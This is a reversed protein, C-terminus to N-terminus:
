EEESVETTLDASWEDILRATRFEASARWAREREDLAAKMEDVADRLDTELDGCVLCDEVAHAVSGKSYWSEGEVTRSGGSWGRVSTGPPANELWYRVHPGDVQAWSLYWHPFIESAPDVPDLPWDEAAGLDPDDLQYLHWGDELLLWGREMLEFQPWVRTPGDSGPLLANVHARTEFMAALDAISTRPGAVLRIEREITFRIERENGEIVADHLPFGPDPTEVAEDSVTARRQVGAHPIWVLPIGPLLPPEEWHENWGDYAERFICSMESPRIEGSHLDLLGRTRRATKVFGALDHRRIIGAVMENIMLALRDARIDADDHDDGSRDSWVSTARAVIVQADLPDEGALPGVVEALKLYKNLDGKLDFRGERDRKRADELSRLRGSAYRQFRGGFREAIQGASIGRRKARNIFTQNAQGARFRDEFKLSHGRKGGGRPKRIDELRQRDLGRLRERSDDERDPPAAFRRSFPIVNDDM